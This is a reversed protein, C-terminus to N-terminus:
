RSVKTLVPGVHDRQRLEEFFTTVVRLADALDKVVPTLIIPLAIGDRPANRGHQVVVAMSVVLRFHFAFNRGIQSRTFASRFTPIHGVIGIEITAHGLGGDVSEALHAFAVLREEQRNPEPFRVCWEISWLFVPIEVVASRDRNRLM